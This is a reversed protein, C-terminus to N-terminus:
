ATTIRRRRAIGAVGILGSALLLLTAPEPTVVVGTQYAWLNMDAFAGNANPTTNWDSAQTATLWAPDSSFAYGWGQASQTGVNFMGWFLSRNPAVGIIPVYSAWEGAALPMSLWLQEVDALNALTFGASSATGVMDNPTQNFFNNLDLWVRGTAVDQFTRLGNVDAYNVVQASAPRAALMGAVIVGGIM